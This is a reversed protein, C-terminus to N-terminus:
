DDADEKALWHSCFDREPVVVDIGNHADYRRACAARTEGRSTIWQECYQCTECRRQALANVQEKLWVVLEAGDPYLESNPHAEQWLYSAERICRAYIAIIEELASLAESLDHVQNERATLLEALSTNEEALLRLRTLEAELVSIREEREKITVEYRLSLMAMDHLTAMDSSDVHLRLQRECFAAHIEREEKTLPETM